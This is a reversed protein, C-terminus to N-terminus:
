QIRLISSFIGKKIIKKRKKEEMFSDNQWKSIEVPSWLKTAIRSHIM